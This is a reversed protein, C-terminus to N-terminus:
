NSSVDESSEMTMTPSRTFRLDADLDKYKTLELPVDEEKEKQLKQLKYQDNYCRQKQQQQEPLLRMNSLDELKTSVVVPDCRLSCINAGTDDSGIGNGPSSDIGRKDPFTRLLDDMFKIYTVALRLTEIRSLKKEYAFTPVRKRLGDFAENLHSMRRRERVNAARRQDVTIIRRRKRKGAGIGANESVAPSSEYLKWSTAHSQPLGFSSVMVAQNLPDPGTSGYTQAATGNKVNYYFGAIRQDDVPQSEYPPFIRDPSKLVGFSAGPVSPSALYASSCHLDYDEGRLGPFHQWVATGSAVVDEDKNIGSKGSHYLLTPLESRNLFRDMLIPM